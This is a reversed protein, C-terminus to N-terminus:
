WDSVSPGSKVEILSVCVCASLSCKCMYVVPMQKEWSVRILNEFSNALSKKAKSKFNDFKSPKNKGASEMINFQFCSIFEYIHMFMYLLYLLLYFGKFQPFQSIYPLEVHAYHSYM